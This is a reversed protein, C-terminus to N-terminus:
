GNGARKVAMPELRQGLDHAWRIQPIGEGLPGLLFHGEEDVGKGEARSGRHKINTTSRTAMRQRKGTTSDNGRPDINRLAEHVQRGLRGFAFVERGGEGTGIGAIQRGRIPEIGDDRQALTTEPQETTVFVPRGVSVDQGTHGSGHLRSPMDREARETRIELETMKLRTVREVGGRAHVM